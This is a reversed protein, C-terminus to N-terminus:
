ATPLTPAKPAVTPGYVVGVEMAERVSDRDISDSLFRGSADEVTAGVVIKRLGDPFDTVNLHYVM